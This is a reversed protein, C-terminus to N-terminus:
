KLLDMLERIEAESLGDLANVVKDHWEAYESKYKKLVEVAVYKEEPTHLVVKGDNFLDISEVPSSKSIKLLMNKVKVDDLAVGDLANYIAEAIDRFSKAWQGEETRCGSKIFDKLTVGEIDSASDIDVYIYTDLIERSILDDAKEATLDAISRGALLEEQIKGIEAVLNDYMEEITMNIWDKRHDETVLGGIVRGNLMMNRVIIKDEASYKRNSIEDDAIINQLRFLSQSFRIHGYNEEGLHYAMRVQHMLLNHALEHRILVNLQYFTAPDNLFGEGIRIIGRDFNIDATHNPNVKLPVIQIDFLELRDAYKAHHHGKGDDRLLAILKKKLRKELDTKYERPAAEFLKQKHVTLM